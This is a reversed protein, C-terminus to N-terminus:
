QVGQLLLAHIHRQIGQRHLFAYLGNVPGKSGTRCRLLLSVHLGNNFCFLQAMGVTNARGKFPVGQLRHIKVGIWPFKDTQNAM